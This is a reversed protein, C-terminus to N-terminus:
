YNIWVGVRLQRPSGFLDYGYVALAAQRNELNIAKYLDAFREYRGPDGQILTQADTTSLFGDDYANGTKDYVNIVSKTNLLNFVQIYFNVDLNYITVTKDIRFDINYVWPTKASNIPGIPRRGRTDGTGIPTL